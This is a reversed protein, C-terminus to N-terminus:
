DWRALEIFVVDDFFPLQYLLVPDTIAVDLFPLQDAKGIPVAIRLSGQDKILAMKELIPVPVPLGFDAIDKINWDLGEWMYIRNRAVVTQKYYSRILPIGNDNCVEELCARRTSRAMKHMGASEYLMALDLDTEARRSMNYKLPLMESKSIEV